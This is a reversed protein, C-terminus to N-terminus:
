RPAETTISDSHGAVIRAINDAASPNREPDFYGSHAPTAGLGSLLPLPGDGSEMRTAGFEASAPDTGFWIDDNGWRGAAVVPSVVGFLDQKAPLKTVPDNDASGVFVHGKGVNLESAKDAGTGPSGLLVIDDAGPIGGDQRAATGVALSGYSHGIATIHANKHESTAQIGDMFSNYDSAGKSANTTSMVDKFGPADYGLWVISASSPDYKQAGKATQYARRVTDDAFEGDLATGLGPVYSSVNKSTDPNGYSVIARGKGELGVGLLYMPPHSNQSLKDQIGRLGALKEQAGDATKGELSAIILPLNERNAQDRAVAPIGDLGGLVDPFSTIYEQQEEKSLHDWWQKREAPTKDLVDAALYQRAANGVADVDGAVNAWKKKDVALGSAAKLKNLASSYREDIESAERVAHAIRDAVDQAKARHPNPSALAPADAGAAPDYKGEGDRHLGPNGVGVLGNNGMVSGGPVMDGTMSNQGGAPYDISGDENVTYGLTAADDLADRLRRQPSNAESALGDLVGRILGAETQVYHYNESLRKLRKVASRASESDQTKTLKNSMDGDVCERSHDAFKSLAGWGDAAETLESLKLDRLQQWTLASSGAMTWEGRRTGPVTVAKAKGGVEADIEGLDVAVQRLEPELASCEERVRGLRENWSTLVTKLAGLSTLGALGGGVGEHASRLDVRATSTSAQLDDATGAAQTWPGREHRLTSVGGGSAESSSTKGHLSNIQTHNNQREVAQAKLQEWEAWAM